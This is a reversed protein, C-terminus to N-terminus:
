MLVVDYEIQVVEIISVVLGFTRLLDFNINSVPVLGILNLLVGCCAAVAVATPLSRLSGAATAVSAARLIPLRLWLLM